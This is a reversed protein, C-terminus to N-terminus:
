DLHRLRISIRGGADTTRIAASAFRPPGFRMPADNSFGVGEEPLGILTRKVRHSDDEDQFVQVAYTGPPLNGIEVRVTGPRAPASGHYPCGPSLFTDATCVAVRVHGRDSRVDTVLVELQGVAHASPTLGISLVTVAAILRASSHSVRSGLVPM